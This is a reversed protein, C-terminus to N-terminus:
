GFIEVVRESKVVFSNGGGGKRLQPIGWRRFNKSNISIDITQGEGYRKEEHKYPM